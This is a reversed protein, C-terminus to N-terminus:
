TCCLAVRQLVGYCVAVRLFCVILTQYVDKSDRCGSVRTSTNCHTAAHQLTNCRTAAHQLVCFACSEHKISMRVTVVGQCVHLHTSAHQLTNCRTAAHQLTNCRTAAHQLTNCHTAAHQLTHASGMKERRWSLYKSMCVNVGQSIHVHTWM